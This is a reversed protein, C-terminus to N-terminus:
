LNETVLLNQLLQDMLYIALKKKRRKIKEKGMGKILINMEKNNKFRDSIYILYPFTANNNEWDDAWMNAHSPESKEEFANKCYSLIMDKNTIHYDNKFISQVKM